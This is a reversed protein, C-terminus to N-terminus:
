VPDTAPQASRPHPPHQLPQRANDEQREAHPEYEARTSGPTGRRWFLEPLGTMEVHTTCAALAASNGALVHARIRQIEGPTPLEGVLLFPLCLRWSKVVVDRHRHPARLVARAVRLAHENATMTDPYAEHNWSWRLEDAVACRICALDGTGLEVACASCTVLTMAWDTCTWPHAGVDSGLVVEALEREGVAREAAVLEQWDLLWFQDV